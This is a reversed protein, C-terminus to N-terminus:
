VFNNRQVGMARRRVGFLRSGPRADRPRDVVAAEPERELPVHAPHVVRQREHGLVRHVALVMVVLHREPEDVCETIVEYLM